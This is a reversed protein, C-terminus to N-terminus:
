ERPNKSRRDSPAGVESENERIRAKETRLHESKPSLEESNDKDQGFPATNPSM